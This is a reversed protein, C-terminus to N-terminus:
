PTPSPISIHSFWALAYIGTGKDKRVLIIVLTSCFHFTFM